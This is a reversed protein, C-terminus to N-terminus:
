GKRTNRAQEEIEKSFRRWRGKSPYVMRQVAIREAEDMNITTKGSITTSEIQQVARLVEQARADAEPSHESEKHALDRWKPLHADWLRTVIFSNDDPPYAAFHIIGENKIDEPFTSYYYNLQSLGQKLESGQIFTQNPRLFLQATRLHLSDNSAFVMCFPLYYLYAIDIKNSPRERGILDSAISLYFFLDVSLVHHFYPAYDKIPKRGTTQWKHIIMEATTPSLGIVNLGIQFTEEVNPGDVIRSVFDRVETLSRPRDGNSFWTKFYSYLGDFDINSLAKRWAKAFQRDLIQFDGKQWRQLAEEESTQPFFLGTEGELAISKAGGLILRGDMPVKQLQMLEGYLM